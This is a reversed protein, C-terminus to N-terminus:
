HTTLCSVMCLGSSLIEWAQKLLKCKTPLNRTLTVSSVHRIKYFPSNVVVIFVGAVKYGIFELFAIHVGMLVPNPTRLLSSQRAKHYTMGVAVVTNMDAELLRKLVDPLSNTSRNHVASRENHKVNDKAVILYDKIVL